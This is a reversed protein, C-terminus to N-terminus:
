NRRVRRHMVRTCFCVRVSCWVEQQSGQSSRDRKQCCRALRVGLNRQLKAFWRGIATSYPAQALRLEYDRMATVINAKQSPSARCVVVATCKSGLLALNAERASDGLVHTLTKGDIVLETPTGTAVYSEAQNVLQVPTPPHPMTYAGPAGDCAPRTTCWQEQCAPLADTMCVPPVVGIRICITDGSGESTASVACSMCLQM